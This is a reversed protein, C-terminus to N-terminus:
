QAFAKNYDIIFASLMANVTKTVEHSFDEKTITILSAQSFTMASVITKNRVLEAQEFLALQVYSALQTGCELAKLRIVLMPNDAGEEVLINSQNLRNTIDVQLSQLKMGFSEIEKASAEIRLNVKPRQVSSSPLDHTGSQSVLMQINLIFAFLLLSLKKM